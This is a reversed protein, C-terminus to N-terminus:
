NTLMLAAQSSTIKLHAALAMALLQLFVFSDSSFHPEALAKCKQM